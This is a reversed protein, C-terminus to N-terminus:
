KTELLTGPSAVPLLRSHFDDPENPAVGSIQKM